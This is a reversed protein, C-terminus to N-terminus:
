VVTKEELCSKKRELLRQFEWGTFEGGHDHICKVPWPYRTLWTQAFKKSVHDSTKDDVRVLETLNTVPDIITLALFTCMKNHIKVEWPGILDVAVEEFPQEKIEKEPLLGYGKGPLKHRQCADCKFRLVEHRIEPHYYRQKLTMELRKEGPHGTVLHFWKIAPKLLKKPLVIKWQSQQDHGRKM